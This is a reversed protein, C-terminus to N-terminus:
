INGPRMSEQGDGNNGVNDGASSAQDGMGYLMFGPDRVAQQM